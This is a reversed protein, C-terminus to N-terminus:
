RKSRGAAASADAPLAYTSRYLLLAAATYRQAAFRAWEFNQVSYRPWLVM